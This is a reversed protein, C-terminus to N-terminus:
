NIRTYVNFRIKENNDIIIESTNTIEFNAKFAPFFTDCDFTNEIETVYLKTCNKMQVCQNYINGGGIVFNNEAKLERALELAKQISNATKAEPHNLLLSENRSLVINHRNPLPRFKEPISEWTARGMIVTNKLNEDKTNTTIEKFYKMDKKLRWPLDGDKGIGRNKDTAVVLSFEIPM